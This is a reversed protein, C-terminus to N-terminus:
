DDAPPEDISGNDSGASAPQSSGGSSGSDSTSGSSPQSYSSEHTSIPATAPPTGGDTNNAAPGPDYTAAAGNDVTSSNGQQYQSGEVTASKSNGQDPKYTGSGPDSKPGGGTDANGQYRPDESPNKTEPPNPTPNPNPNSGGGGSSSTLLNNWIPIIEETKKKKITTPPVPKPKNSVTPNLVEHRKDRENVGFYLAVKGTKTYFPFALSALTEDYNARTTVRMSNQDGAILHTHDRAKAKLVQVRADRPLLMMIYSIVHEVYKQNTYLVNEEEGDTISVLWINAGKGRLEAYPDKGEGEYVKTRSAEAMELFERGAAWNESVTAYDAIKQEGLMRVGDEALVYNGLVEDFYEWVQAEVEEDSFAVKQNKGAALIKKVQEENLDFPFSVADDIQKKNLGLDVSAKPRQEDTPMLSYDYMLHVYEGDPTVKWNHLKDGYVEFFAKVTDADVDAAQSSMYEVFEHLEEETAIDKYALEDVDPAEDKTFSVLDVNAKTIEEGLETKVPETETIDKTKTDNAETEAKTAETAKAVTTTATAEAPASVAYETTAAKPLYSWVGFSLAAVGLLSLAVTTIKKLM